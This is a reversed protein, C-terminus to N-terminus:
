CREPKWRYANKLPGDPYPRFNYRELRAVMDSKNGPKVVAVLLLDLRKEVEILRKFIGKGQAAATVGAYTLHIYWDEFWRKRRALQFGVVLGNEDVGVYSFGELCSDKIQMKIQEVRERTNLAVPVQDAVESLISYIAEVDLADARRISFEM